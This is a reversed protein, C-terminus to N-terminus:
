RRIQIYTCTARQQLCAAPQCALVSRLSVSGVPCSCALATVDFRSAFGGAIHNRKDSVTPTSDTPPLRCTVKCLAAPPNCTSRHWQQQRRRAQAFFVRIPKSNSPHRKNPLHMHRVPLRCIWTNPTQNDPVAARPRGSTSKIKTCLAVNHTMKHSFASFCSSLVVEVYSRLKYLYNVLEVTFGVSFRQCVRCLLPSFLSISRQDLKTRKRAKQLILSYRDDRIGPM